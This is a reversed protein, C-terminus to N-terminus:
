NVVSLLHNAAKRSIDVIAKLEEAEKLSINLNGASLMKTVQADTLVEAPRRGLVSTNPTKFHLWKGSGCPIWFIWQKVKVEPGGGAGRPMFIPEATESGYYDKGVPIQSNVRVAPIAIPRRPHNESIPPNLVVICSDYLDMSTLTSGLVWAVSSLATDGIVAHINLQVTQDDGQPLIYDKRLNPTALITSIQHASFTDNSYAPLGRPHSHTQYKAIGLALNAVRLKMAPPLADLQHGQMPRGVVTESTDALVSILLRLLLWIIQFAAWTLVVQTSQQSLLIYSILLSATHLLATTIWIFKWWLSSKPNKMAGLVVKRTGEIHNVATPLIGAVIDIHGDIDMLRRCAAVEGIELCVATLFFFTFPVASLLAM